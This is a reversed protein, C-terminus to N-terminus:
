INKPKWNIGLKQLEGSQYCSELFEQGRKSPNILEADVWSMLFARRDQKPPQQSNTEIVGVGKKVQQPKQQPQLKKKQRLEYRSLFRQYEDVRFIYDFDCIFGTNNDGMQFREHKIQDFVMDVSQRGYTSICIEIKDIMKLSVRKWEPLIGNFIKNYLKQIEYAEAEKNERKKSPTNRSRLNYINNDEKYQTPLGSPLQSPLRNPLETPLQNSPNLSFLDEQSNYGDYDCVTVIMGRNSSNIIVEGYDRLKILRSKVDFESLGTGEMIAARSTPCSGRRVRRGDPLVGDQVYAHCHLYLYVTIMKPDKAWLRDFVNSDQRYYRM